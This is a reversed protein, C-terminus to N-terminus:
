ACRRIDIGLYTQCLESTNESSDPKGGHSTRTGVLEMKPRTTTCVPTVFERGVRSSYEEVFSLDEGREFSRGGFSFHARFSNLSQEETHLVLVPRGMVYLASRLHGCVDRM